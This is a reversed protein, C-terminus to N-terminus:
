FITDALSQLAYHLFQFLVCLLKCEGYSHQTWGVTVFNVIHM